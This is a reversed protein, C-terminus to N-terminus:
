EAAQLAVFLRADYLGCFAALLACIMASAGYCVLRSVLGLWPAHAAFSLQPLVINEAVMVPLIIFTIQVVTVALRLLWTRMIVLGFYRWGLQVSQILPGFIGNRALGTLPRPQMAAVVWFRLLTDTIILLALSVLALLWERPPAPAPSASTSSNSQEYRQLIARKNALNVSPLLLELRQDIGGDKLSSASAQRSLQVLSARAPVLLEAWPHLPGLVAIDIGRAATLRLMDYRNPYFPQLDPVELGNSLLFPTFGLACVFLLATHLVSGPLLAGCRGLALGFACRLSLPTRAGHLGLATLTGHALTQLLLGAVGLALLWSTPSAIRVNTVALLRASQALVSIGAFGILASALMPGAHAGMVAFTDRWLTGVSVAPKPPTATAETARHLRAAIHSMPLAILRIPQNM